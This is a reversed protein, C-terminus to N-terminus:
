ENIIEKIYTLGQDAKDQDQMRDFVDKMLNNLEWIDGITNKLEDQDIEFDRLESNLGQLYRDMIRTLHQGYTVLDRPGMESHDIYNTKM